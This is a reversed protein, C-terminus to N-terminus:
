SICGRDSGGLLVVCTNGAVQLLTIGTAMIFFGILFLSYSIYTAAGCFMVSGLGITVLGAIFSMKYGVRKLFLAAPIAMLVYGCFFVVQMFWEQTKNLELIFQLVPIFHYNMWTVFGWIFFVFSLIFLSKKATQLFLM